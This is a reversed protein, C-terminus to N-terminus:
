TCANLKGAGRAAALVLVFLIQHLMCGHTCFGQSKCVYIVNIYADIAKGENQIGHIIAKAQVKFFQHYCINKILSTSPQAPNTHFAAYSM